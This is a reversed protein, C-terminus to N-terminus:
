TSKIAQKSSKHSVDLSRRSVTQCLAIDKFPKITSVYKKADRSESPGDSIVDFIKGQGKDMNIQKM